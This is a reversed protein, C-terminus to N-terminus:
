QKSMEAEIAVELWKKSCAYGECVNYDTEQVELCIPCNYGYQNYLRVVKEILVHNDDTFPSGHQGKKFGFGLCDALHIEKCIGANQKFFNELSLYKDELELDLYSMLNLLVKGAQKAHCTDLLTGIRTTNLDERLKKVLRVGEFSFNSRLDFNKIDKYYNLPIVNEVVLEIFQYENLIRGVFECVKYYVGTNIIRDFDMESHMVITVSKGSQKAISNGLDCINAFKHQFVPNGLFEIHMMGEREIPVHIARIPYSKIDRIDYLDTWPTFSEEEPSGFERFLQIEIGDCGINMKCDLQEKTLKSKAYILPKNM